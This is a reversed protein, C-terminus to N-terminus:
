SFQRKMSAKSIIESIENWTGKHILTSIQDSLEGSTIIADAGITFWDIVSQCGHSRYMDIIQDDTVYRKHFGM